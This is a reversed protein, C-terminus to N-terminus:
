SRRETLVSSLDFFISSSAMLITILSGQELDPERHVHGGDTRAKNDKKDGVVFWGNRQRVPTGCMNVREQGDMM